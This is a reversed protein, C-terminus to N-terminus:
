TPLLEGERIGCWYLMEFAYYSLPKDMMAEAFKLYEAKTWFLMERNKKKGMSGAEDGHRLEQRVFHLVIEFHEIIDAFIVEPSVRFAVTKNRWRNYSDLNKASM